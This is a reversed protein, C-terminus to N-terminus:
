QPCAPAIATLQKLRVSLPSISRGRVTCINPHLSATSVLAPFAPRELSHDPDIAPRRIFGRDVVYGIRDRLGSGAMARRAADSFGCRALVNLLNHLRWLNGGNSVSAHSAALGMESLIIGRFCRDLVLRPRQHDPYGV